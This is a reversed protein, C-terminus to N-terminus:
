STQLQLPAPSTNHPLGRFFAPLHWLFWLAGIILSHRAGPSLSIATAPLAFGRWGIEEGLSLLIGIILM